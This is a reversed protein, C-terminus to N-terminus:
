RYGIREVQEQGDVVHSILRGDEEVTTTTVGNQVIKKTTVRKGNRITTSTSSSTFHPGGMSSSSSMSFSGGGNGFSSSFFSGGLGPGGFGQGGFGHAPFGGGFGGFGSSFFPDDDFMSFASRASRSSRPRSGNSSHRGGFMMDAFPDRGGFFERFIDDASRFHFGGFDQFNGEPGGDSTGNLGQKGYRDYVEKKKPDSLVDYAESILKFKENALDPNDPNKDPHWKLALKRYAKKIEEGSADRSVGMVSYYDTDEEPETRRSKKRSM